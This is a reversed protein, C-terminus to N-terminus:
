LSFHSAVFNGWLVDAESQAPASLISKANSLYQEEAITDLYYDIALEDNMLKGKTIASNYCPPVVNTNKTMSGRYLSNMQITPMSM